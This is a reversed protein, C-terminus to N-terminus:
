PLGLKKKIEAQAIGVIVSLAVGPLGNLRAKVRKWIGPDRINDLFDHGNSTLRSFGPLTGSSNAGVVMGAEILLTLHYAVQELTHDFIGLEEPTNYSYETSGDYKDDSEIHLLLERYLEIDRKM